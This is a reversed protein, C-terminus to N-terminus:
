VEPLPYLLTIWDYVNIVEGSDRLVIEQGEIRDIRFTRLQRRLHCYGTIHVEDVEKVDVERFSKENCANLYSFSILQYNSSNLSAPIQIPQDIASQEPAANSPKTKNDFLIGMTGFLAFGTFIHAAIIHLSRFIFYLGIFFVAVIMCNILTSNTKKKNVLNMGVVVGCIIMLIVEMALLM